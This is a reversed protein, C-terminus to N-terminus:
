IVEAICSLMIDLSPATVVTGEGLRRPLALRVKGARAKKDREMMGAVSEPRLGDKSRAPLGYSAIVSDLREVESSNLMGMRKSMRAEAAMGLAVAEGHSVRYSTLSEIAHGVTHGFNLLMRVGQDLEDRAVIGAKLSVARSVVRELLSPELSLLGSFDKELTGLLNCDLMAGYKILEATGCGLERAPLTALLATDELVFKPQYIAGILNKAKPHNIATKGGIGADVQALLTTPVHVLQTGRMYTAAVFGALDGVCGGGLSVIVSDKGAGFGALKEVVDSFVGISKAQEGDPVEIIKADIGSKSLINEAMGCYLTKVPPVTLLAVTGKEPKLSDGLMSLTGEGIHVPYSRKGLEVTITRM